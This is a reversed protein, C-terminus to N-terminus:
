RDRRMLAPCITIIPLLVYSGLLRYKGTFLSLSYAAVAFVFQDERRIARRQPPTYFGDKPTEKYPCATYM